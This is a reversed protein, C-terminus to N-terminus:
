PMGNPYLAVKDAEGGLMLEFARQYEELPM